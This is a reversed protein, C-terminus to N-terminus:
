LLENNACHQVRWMISPSSHQLVEMRVDMKWGDDMRLQALLSCILTTSIVVEASMHLTSVDDVTCVDVSFYAKLVRLKIVDM